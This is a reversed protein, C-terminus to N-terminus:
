YALIDPTFDLPNLYEALRVTSRHWYPVSWKSLTNVEELYWGDPDRTAVKNLVWEPIKETILDPVRWRDPEHWDYRDELLWAGSGQPTAMFSGLIYYHPHFRFGRITEGKYDPYDWQRVPVPKDYSELLTVARKYDVEYFPIRDKLLIAHLIALTITPMIVEPIPVECDLQSNVLSLLFAEAAPHYDNPLVKTLFGFRKVLMKLLAANM